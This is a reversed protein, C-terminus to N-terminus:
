LAGSNYSDRDLSKSRLIPDGAHFFAVGQSVAVLALALRHRRIRDGLPSDEACKMIMQVRGPEHAAGAPPGLPCAKLELCWVGLGKVPLGTHFHDCSSCCTSWPNLPYLATPSPLCPIQVRQGGPPSCQMRVSLQRM